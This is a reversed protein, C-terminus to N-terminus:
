GMRCGWLRRSLRCALWSEAQEELRETLRATAGRPPDPPAPEPPVAISLAAGPPPTPRARMRRTTMRRAVRGRAAAAITTAAAPQRDLVAVAETLWEPETTDFATRRAVCANWATAIADVAAAQEQMKRLAIEDEAELGILRSPGTAGTSAIAALRASREEAAM